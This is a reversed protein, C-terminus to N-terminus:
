PKAGSENSSYKVSCIRIAALVSLVLLLGVILRKYFGVLSAERESAVQEEEVQAGVVSAEAEAVVVDVPTAVM